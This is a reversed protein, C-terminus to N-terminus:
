STGGKGSLKTMSCKWNQKPQREIRTGILRYVLHSTLLKLIRQGSIIEM